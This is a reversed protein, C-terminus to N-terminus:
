ERASGLATRSACSSAPAWWRGTTFYEFVRVVIRAPGAGATDAAPPAKVPPPKKGLLGRMERVLEYWGPPPSKLLADHADM